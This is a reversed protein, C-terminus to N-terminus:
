DYRLARAPEVRSARWAPYLAALSSIALATLAVQSVDAVRLDSPLYSIPYVDSKLFQIQFLRELLAVLDTIVLALGVGLAVGLLTGVLGVMFGQVLFIRVIGAGTAGQSRLIAIDGQKDNVVLVLASVVNFAAVAIIIALMMGVLRKSLQIATYLNGHSRSWDSAYYNGGLQGWLRSAVEPAAFVDDLMVRLAIAHNQDRDLQRASALPLLVLSEDLETGSRLLGAVRFRGVGPRMQGQMDRQPVVVTLKDGVAAGLATALGSGLLLADSDSQLQQLADAETFRALATSRVEREIDVGFLLATAVKDGRMLMGNLQLLPAVGAVGPEQELQDATSQWDDVPATPLLTVHPVLGLIRLRMEREFGSMVSLVLILLAVGVVLGAMATRSLFTTLRSGPSSGGFYLGGFRLGIFLSYNSFISSFINACLRAM